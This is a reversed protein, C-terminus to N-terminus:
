GNGGSKSLQPFEKLIQDSLQQEVQKRVKAVGAKKQCAQDLKYLKMEETRLKELNADSLPKAEGLYAWGSGDANQSSSWQQDGAGGQPEGTAPDLPVIKQGALEAKVKELYSYADNPSALEYSSDTAKLCDLWKKNAAKIAPDDEINKFLEDLRQSIEPNSFPSDGFVAKSAKGYCGQQELPPPVFVGSTDNPDAEIPKGSLDEYYQTQETQSLTAVYAQNPDTTQVAPSTDPVGTDVGRLSPLEYLEYNHTVGYAYKKGYEEPTLNSDDEGGGNTAIQAAYDVPTYDWGLEKMCQAVVEEQKIQKRRSEAPSDNGGFIAALPSDTASTDGSSSSTSSKAGAGCAGLVVFSMAAISRAVGPRKLM